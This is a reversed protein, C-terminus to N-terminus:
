SRCAEPASRKTPLVALATTGRAASVVGVVEYGSQTQRLVPAGSTGPSVACDLLLRRGGVSLVPCDRRNLAHVRPKGYGWVLLTEGPAPAAEAWPFALAAAAAKLCLTVFDEGESDEGIAGPRLHEKWAGRQYGLLLHLESVRLGRVCHAATVAVAPGTMFATCHRANKYGAFNLRGIAEAAPEARAAPIALFLALLLLLRPLM